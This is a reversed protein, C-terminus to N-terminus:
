PQQAAPGHAHIISASLMTPYHLHDTLVVHTTYVTDNPLCPLSNVSGVTLLVLSSGASCGDV